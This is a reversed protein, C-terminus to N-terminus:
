IWIMGVNTSFVMKVYIVVGGHPDGPRDKREPASYSQLM